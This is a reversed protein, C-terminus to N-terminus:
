FALEPFLSLQQSEPEIPEVRSVQTFNFTEEMSKVDGSLVLAEAEKPTAAEVLGFFERSKSFSVRYKM